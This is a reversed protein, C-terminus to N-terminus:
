KKENILYRIQQIVDTEPLGSNETLKDFELSTDRIDINDPSWKQDKRAQLTKLLEHRSTYKPNIKM